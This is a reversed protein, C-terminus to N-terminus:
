EPVLESSGGVEVPFNRLKPLRDKMPLVTEAQHLHLIPKFTTRPLVAARVNRWLPRERSLRIGSGRGTNNLALYKPKATVKKCHLIPLLPPDRGLLAEAPEVTMM